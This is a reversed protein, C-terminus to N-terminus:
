RPNLEKEAPLRVLAERAKRHFVTEGGPVRLAGELALRAEKLRNRKWAVMGLHYQMEASGVPVSQALGVRAKQLLRDAEELEGRRFRVWGLTDLVGSKDAAPALRLAEEALELAEDLRRGSEALGLAMLNCYRSRSANGTAWARECAAIAEDFRGSVYLVGALDLHLEGDKTEDKLLESLVTAARDTHGNFLLIQAQIRSPWSWSRAWPSGMTLAVLSAGGMLLAGVVRVAAAGRSGERWSMACCRCRDPSEFPDGMNGCAPCRPPGDSEDPLLPPLRRRWATLLGYFALMAMFTLGLATFSLQQMVWGGNWAGLVLSANLCAHAVTPALLSHCCERSRAWALAFVFLVPFRAPSGHLAAFVFASVAAAHWPGTRSRLGTYLLGRFLLEEVLPALLVVLLLILFLESGQSSKWIWGELSEVREVRMGLSAMLKSTGLNVLSTVLGIQLGAVLNERWAFATIGVYRALFRQRRFWRLLLIAALGNVVLGSVGTATWLEMGGLGLAALALTQAGLWFVLLLIAMRALGKPATPFSRENRDVTLKAQRVRGLTMFLFGTVLGVLLWTWFGSM